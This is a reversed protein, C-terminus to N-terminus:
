KKVGKFFEKYAGIRSNFFAFMFNEGEHKLTSCHPIRNSDMMVVDGGEINMAVCLTPLILLRGIIKGFYAQVAVDNFDTHVATSAFASVYVNSFAKLSVVKKGQIESDTVDQAFRKEAFTKSFEQREKRMNLKEDRSAFEQLSNWINDLRAKMTTILRSLEELLSTPCTKQQEYLSFKNGGCRVGANMVVRGCADFLHKIFSSPADMGEPTKLVASHVMWGVLVRVCEASIDANEVSSFVHKCFRLIFMGNEAAVAAASM